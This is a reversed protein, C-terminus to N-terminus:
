CQNIGRRGVLAWCSECCSDGCVAAQELIGFVIFRKTSSSTRAIAQTKSAECPTSDLFNTVGVFGDGTLRVRWGGVFVTGGAGFGVKGGLVSLGM